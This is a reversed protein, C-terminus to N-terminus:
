PVGFSGDSRNLVYFIPGYRLKSAVDFSIPYEFRGRGEAVSPAVTQTDYLVDVLQGKNTRLVIKVPEYGKEGLSSQSYDYRITMGLESVRLSEVTIYDDSYSDTRNQAPIIQREEAPCSRRLWKLSRGQSDMRYRLVSKPM